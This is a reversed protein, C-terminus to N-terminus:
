MIVLVLHNFHLPPHTRCKWGVTVSVAEITDSSFVPQYVFSPGELEVFKGKLGNLGSPPSSRLLSQKAFLHTDCM